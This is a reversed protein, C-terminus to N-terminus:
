FLRFSVSFDTWRTQLNHAGKFVSLTWGYEVSSLSSLFLVVSTNISEASRGEYIICYIHYRGEITQRQQRHRFSHFLVNVGAGDRISPTHAHYPSPIYHEVGTGSRM